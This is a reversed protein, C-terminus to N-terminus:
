RKEKLKLAQNHFELAKQKEGLSEYVQSIQELTAAERRRDGLAQFHLRAQHHYDLAKQPEGSAAYYRGIQNGGTM